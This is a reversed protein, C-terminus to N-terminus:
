VRLRKLESIDLNRTKDYLYERQSQLPSSILDRIYAFILRIKLRSYFWKYMVGRDFLLVIHLVRVLWINNGKKDTWVTDKDM